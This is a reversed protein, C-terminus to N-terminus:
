RPIEPRATAPPHDGTLALFVEDLTAKRLASEEIAIGHGDLERVLPPLMGRDPVSVTVTGAGTSYSKAPRRAAESLGFRELLEGARAKAQRRPIGLLRGVMVLNNFGSLLEGV